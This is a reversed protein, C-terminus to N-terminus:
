AIMPQAWVTVNYVFASPPSDLDLAPLMCCHRSHLIVFQIPANKSSFSRPKHIRYIQLQFQALDVNKEPMVLHEIPRTRLTPRCALLVVMLRLTACRSALIPRDQMGLRGPAFPVLVSDLYDLQRPRRRRTAECGKKLRQRDFHNFAALWFATAPSNFSLQSSIWPMM